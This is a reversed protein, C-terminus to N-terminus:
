RLPARRLWMLRLMWSLLFITAFKQSGPLWAAYNADTIGQRLYQLLTVSSSTALAAGLWRTLPDSRPSLLPMLVVAAVIGLVASLSV